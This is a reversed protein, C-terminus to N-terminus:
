KFKNKVMVILYLSGGDFVIEDNAGVQNVYVFPIGYRKAIESFIHNRQEPKGINSPSANISIFITAGDQAVEKVPSTIYDYSEDNWGDECIMFGIRRVKGNINLEAM